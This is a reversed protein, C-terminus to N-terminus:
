LLEGNSILNELIRTFVIDAIPNHVNDMIWDEEEETMDGSNPIYDTIIGFVFDSVEDEIADIVKDAMRKVFRPDPEIDAIFSINPRNIM